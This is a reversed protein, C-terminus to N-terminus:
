DRSDPHGCPRVFRGMLHLQFGAFGVGGRHPVGARDPQAQREHDRDGQGQGVQHAADLQHLLLLRARGRDAEARADGLLRQRAAQDEAQAAARGFYVQTLTISPGKKDSCVKTATVCTVNPEPKFTAADLWDDNTDSVYAFGEPLPAANAAPSTSIEKPPSWPPEM